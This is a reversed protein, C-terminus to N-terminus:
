GVAAAVVVVHFHHAKTGMKTPFVTSVTPSFCKSLKRANWHLQQTRGTQPHHIGQVSTKTMTMRTQKM